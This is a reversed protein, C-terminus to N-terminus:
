ARDPDVNYTSVQEHDAEWRGRWEKGVRREESRERNWQPVPHQPGNGPGHRASSRARRRDLGQGHEMRWGVRRSRVTLGGVAGAFRVPPEVPRWRRRANGSVEEAASGPLGDDPSRGLGVAGADRRAARALEGALFDRFSLGLADIYKGDRYVFYMPVDLAYDVYREFGMGYEFVFPLTGTRADDLSRWIRSRWSQHGNPKGELFPSNAFLATAIPQLALSVRFMKVMTAESDFDLNVQVTCTSQMMDLGLNGRTPMYKQMIAYRNKPMWPMETRPWKPQYGVGFFGIGMEAAVAKVQQLHTGVEKCTEHITSLPAGSLELQGAPELTISSGDDQLLAIVNGDESVPNWGFRPLKALMVGVGQEGEYDLPRLDDLRYAFKEHETGIRWNERAKCGSALYDVLQSKNTIPESM